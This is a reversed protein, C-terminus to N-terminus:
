ADGKARKVALALGRPSLGTITQLHKWTAGGDLAEVIQRDRYEVLNARREDAATLREVTRRLEPLDESM